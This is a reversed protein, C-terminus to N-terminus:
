SISANTQTGPGSEAHTEALSRVAPPRIGHVAPTTLTPLPNLIARNYQPTDDSAARAPSCRKRLSEGMM